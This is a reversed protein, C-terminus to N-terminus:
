WPLSKTIIKPNKKELIIENLQLEISELHSVYRAATYNKQEDTKPPLMVSEISLKEKVWNIVQEQTVESYPTFTWENNPIKEFLSTDRKSAVLGDEVKEVVWDVECIFDNFGEKNPNVRLDVIKWNYESM